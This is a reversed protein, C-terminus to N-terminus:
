YIRWGLGVNFGVSSVSPADGSEFAYNYIGGLNFSTTSNIPITIGAMPAIGFHTEKQIVRYLGMELTRDTWYIGAGLGIYPRIEGFDGWHYHVTALLPLQNLFHYQKATFRTISGETELEETVLGNSEERFVTWASYLGATLGGKVSFRLDASFGRWSFEDTWDQSEGVTFAPNYNLYFYSYDQANLASSQAFLFLGPILALIKKM